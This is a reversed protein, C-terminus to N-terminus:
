SPKLTSVVGTTTVWSRSLVSSPSVSVCAGHSFIVGWGPLPITVTRVYDDSATQPETLSSSVAIAYTTINDRESDAMAEVLQPSDHSEGDTIVLM